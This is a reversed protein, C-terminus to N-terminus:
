PGGSGHYTTSGPVYGGGANRHMPASGAGSASDPAVSSCAVATLALLVALATGTTRM